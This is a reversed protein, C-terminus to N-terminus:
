STSNIAIESIIRSLQSIIFLGTFFKFNSFRTAFRNLIMFVLFILYTACRISLTVLGDVGSCFINGGYVLIVSYTRFFLTGLSAAFLLNKFIISQFFINMFDFDNCGSIKIYYRASPYVMMFSFLLSFINSQADFNYSFYSFSNSFLYLCVLLLFIFVYDILYRLRDTVGM